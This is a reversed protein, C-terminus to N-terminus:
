VPIKYHGYSMSTIGDDLLYQKDNSCSLGVKTYRYLGINHNFTRLNNFSVQQRQNSEGSEFLCRKYDNHTITNILVCKKIGKGTKKEIIYKYKDKGAQVKMLTDLLLSYMKSRLGCFEKIIYHKTEPKFMGLVKKNTNDQSMYGEGGFESLDFLHSDEKMDRYVDETKIHYCLSDTDTFLLTAKDGYKPKIYDYHFKYMHLKSLDLISAGVYIPKNLTVETKLMKVAVLKDDEYIKCDVFHPKAIQKKLLEEDTYLNINQHCRVNEMTKGFVANNMLKFLDKEFDNKAKTREKTNFDIYQKLWPSREYRIARHIKTLVLGKKLYYQLNRIDCVYNKKDYLNPVLKELTENQTEAYTKMQDLQYPSLENKHIAKKEVALPYNNHLDHLEKPYHLDCEITYGIDTILEKRGNVMKTPENIPNSYDTWKHNIIDNETLNSIWKFNKSGLSQVMAVGYLNNADLYMIYSSVDNKDYTKMYKNNAKAYRHSIMSTGGRIAREFFQYMDPDILQELKVETMKLMVDWAYNPLTLYGNAPDLGYNKFMVNRFEEFVDSLLLVDTKLYLDHYEGFNKFKFTNWVNLGHSYEDDSIDDEALRSYFHKKVPLTKDQFKKYEDVYEYPYIGKQLVLDRQEKIPFTENINKFRDIDLNEVLTALGSSMFAFSDLIRLNGFSITTYKEFNQAILKINSFNMKKLGQIILHGDFGKLNHFYVPIQYNKYHLALNCTNCACGRYEGTFHDHDRVKTNGQTKETQVVVQNCMYCVNANNYEIQQKKTIKMPVNKELLKKINDACAVLRKVSEFAVDDDDNEGRYSEYPQQLETHESVVKFGFSNAKLNALKETKETKIEDISDTVFTEFDAYIVVPAKVTRTFNKFKTVPAKGNSDLKPMIVRTPENIDCNPKHKELIEKSSFPHMCNVCVHQSNAIHIGDEAFTPKNTLSSLNKIYVFHQNKNEGCVLLLNIATDNDQKKNSKIVPFVANQKESVFVNITYGCLDEIKAFTSHNIKVPFTVDKFDIEELYDKYKTVREPDKTIDKKHIHYLICYMLCKDDDNKINICCKKNKIWVPLDIYSGGRFYELVSMNVDVRVCAEFSFGSEKLRMDPAIEKVENLMEKVIPTVENVSHIAQVPYNYWTQVYENTVGGAKLRSFQCLFKFATKYNPQDKTFVARMKPILQNAIDFSKLGWIGTYPFKKVENEVTFGHLTNKFRGENYPISLVKRVPKDLINPEIRMLENIERRLNGRSMDRPKSITVDVKPLAEFTQKTQKANAIAETRLRLNNLNYTYVMNRYGQENGYQRLARRYGSKFYERLHKKSAKGLNDPNLNRPIRSNM